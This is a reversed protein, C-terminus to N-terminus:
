FKFVDYKIHKKDKNFSNEKLVMIGKATAIISLYKYKSAPFKVTKELNFNEDYILFYLPKDFVCNRTGDNNEYKIGKSLVRIYKNRYSDYIFSIFRDNEVSYKTSFSRDTIKSYPFSDNKSFMDAELNIFKSKNTELDVVEIKKSHLFSYIAKNSKLNLTRSPLFENFNNNTKYEKPYGGTIKEITLKGNLIKLHLDRKTNFLRKQSNLDDLREQPCNYVMIKNKYIELPFINDSYLCYNKNFLPIPEELKYQKEIKKDNCIYISNNDTILYIQNNNTIKYDYIDNNIRPLKLEHDKGGNHTSFFNIINTKTNLISIYEKNNSKFVKIYSCTQAINDNNTNICISDVLFLNSNLSDTKQAARYSASITILTLLAFPIIIKLKM